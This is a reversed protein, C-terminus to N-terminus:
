KSEIIPEYWENKVKRGSGYIVETFCLELKFRHGGKKPQKTKMDMEWVHVIRKPKDRVFGRQPRSIYETAKDAAMQQVYDGPGVNVYQFSGHGKSDCFRIQYKIM